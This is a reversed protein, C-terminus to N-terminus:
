MSTLSRTETKPLIGVTLLSWAKLIVCVIMRAASLSLLVLPRMEKSSNMDSKSPAAPM